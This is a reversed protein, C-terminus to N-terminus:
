TPHLTLTYPQANNADQARVGRKREDRQHQVAQRLQGVDEVQPHARPSVKGKSCRAQNLDQNTRFM